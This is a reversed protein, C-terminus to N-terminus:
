FYYGSLIHFGLLAPLPWLLVIHTWLAARQATRVAGVARRQVLATAVGLLGGSLVLGSFCTMLWANLNAGFRFGTHAALALVAAAGVLVHALQWSAFSAFSFRPLRKRLSITSVLVALGLLSYGSLQKYSSATWLVDWQRPAMTTDAYPLAIAFAAAALGAGVFSGGLLWRPMPLPAGTGGALDALLPKCSGCVTSAGTAQALAAVTVAGGALARDLTARTIGRCTCVTATAPWAAVRAAGADGWLNGTRRFRWLQWPWLRRQELSTTRLRAVDWEGFGVAGILRGRHINIRRYRTGDRYVHAAFSKASNEIEGMSFVPCGVVKLSTAVISGRYEAPQGAVNSAAIGAQELGPGVLGYIRERHECCEGIAFVDPDSTRMRDDVRIGRGVAIGADRAIEINPVIGTAVVVTDCDIERGSRLRVGQPGYTGIIQQVREGLHVAIGLQEVHAQLAAAAEADLQHFMLRAEHEVVHVHTNFRRMARAAELGLLGGGIVVTCRSGVQRALLGQADSMSRFLYVGPLEIGPIPPVRPRSGTALVLTRYPFEDGRQDYICKAQRDIRVVRRDALVSVQAHTEIEHACYLAEPALERAVLASLRVRDYPRRPEDGLLLVPDPTGFRCVQEAFRVGAPGSGVVLIPEHRPGGRPAHIATSPIAM